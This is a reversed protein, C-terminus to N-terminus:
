KLSLEAQAQRMALDADEKSHKDARMALIANELTSKESGTMHSKLDDFPIGTNASAHVAALFDVTTIFGKSADQATIGMPLLKQTCKIHADSLVIVEPQKAQAFALSCAFLTLVLANKM